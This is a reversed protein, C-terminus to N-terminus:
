ALFIARLRLMAVDFSTQCLMVPFSVALARLSKNLAERVRASM